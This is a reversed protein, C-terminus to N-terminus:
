ESRNKCSTRDRSLELWVLTRSRHDWSVRRCLHEFRYWRHKCCVRRHLSCWSPCIQNWLSVFACERGGSACQEGWVSIPISACPIWVEHGTVVSEYQQSNFREHAMGPRPQVGKAIECSRQLLKRVSLAHAKEKGVYFSQRAKVSTVIKLRKCRPTAWPPASYRHSFLLFTESDDLFDELTAIM